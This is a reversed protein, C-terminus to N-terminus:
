GTTSSCRSSVVRVGGRFWRGPFPRLPKQKGASEVVALRGFRCCPLPGGRFGLGLGSGRVAGALAGVGVEGLDGRVDGLREVGLGFDVENAVAVAFEAVQDGFEQGRPVLLLGAFASWGVVRSGPLSRQWCRLLEAVCCALLGGVRCDLLAAVRTTAM